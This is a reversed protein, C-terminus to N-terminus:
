RAAKLDIVQGCATLILEIPDAMFPEDSQCIMGYDGPGHSRLVQGGDTKLRFRYPCDAMGCWPGVLVALTAEGGDVRFSAHQIPPITNSGGEAVEEDNWLGTPDSTTGPSVDVLSVSVESAHAEALAAAPSALALVLAVVAGNRALGAM